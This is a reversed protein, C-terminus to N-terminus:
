SVRRTTFRTACDGGARLPTVSVNMMHLRWIIGQCCLFSSLRVASRSNSSV